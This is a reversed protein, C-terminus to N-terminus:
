MCENRLNKPGYFTDSIEERLFHYVVWFIRLVGNVWISRGGRVGNHKYVIYICGGERTNLNIMCSSLASDVTACTWYPCSPDPMITVMLGNCRTAALFFSSNLCINAVLNCGEVLKMSSICSITLLSVAYEGQVLVSCFNRARYFVSCM